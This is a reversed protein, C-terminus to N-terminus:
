LPTKNVHDLADKVTQETEIVIHYLEVCEDWNREWTSGAAAWEPDSCPKGSMIEYADRASAAGLVLSTMILKRVAKDQRELAPENM